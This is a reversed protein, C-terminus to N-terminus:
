YLKFLPCGTEDMSYIREPPIIDFRRHIDELNQFFKNVNSRNFSTSRVLSPAEPKRVSIKM